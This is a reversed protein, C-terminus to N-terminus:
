LEERTNQNSVNQRINGTEDSAVRLFLNFERANVSNIMGEILEDPMPYPSSAFNYGPENDPNVLVAKGDILVLNANAEIQIKRVLTNLFTNTTDDLGQDCSQEKGFDLVLANNIFKTRPQYKNFRDFKSNYFEESNMVSIPYGDKSIMLGYTGQDFRIIKPLVQSKWETGSLSFRITDLNQFAEDPVMSGKKYYQNLIKGRHISLFQRMLRENIPDDDNSQSARVIDWITYILELETTM